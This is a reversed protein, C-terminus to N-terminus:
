WRRRIPTGICPFRSDGKVVVSEIEVDGWSGSTTCAVLNGHDNLIKRLRDILESVKM